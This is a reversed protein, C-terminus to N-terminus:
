RTVPEDGVMLRFDIIVRGEGAISNVSMSHIKVDDCLTAVRQADSNLMQANQMIRSKVANRLMLGLDGGGGGMSYAERLASVLAPVDNQSAIKAYKGCVEPDELERSVLDARQEIELIATEGMLPM